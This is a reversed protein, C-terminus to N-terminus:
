ALKGRVEVETAGKPKLVLRVIGVQPLQESAEEVLEAVRVVVHEVPTCLFHSGCAVRGALEGRPCPCHMTPAVRLQGAAM